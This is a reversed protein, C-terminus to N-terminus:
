FPRAMVSYRSMAIMRYNEAKKAWEDARVADGQATYAQMLWEAARCTELMYELQLKCLIDHANTYARIATSLDNQRHAIRGQILLLSASTFADSNLGEVGLATKVETVLTEGEAISALEGEAINRALQIKAHVVKPDSATRTKSLEEILRRYAVNAKEPNGWEDAWGASFGLKLERYFRACKSLFSM